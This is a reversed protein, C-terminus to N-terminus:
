LGQHPPEPVAIEPDDGAVEGLGRRERRLNEVGTGVREEVIRRELLAPRPRHRHAAPEIRGGGGVDSPEIRVRDVPDAVLCPGIRGGGIFHM